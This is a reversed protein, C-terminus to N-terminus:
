PSRCTASATVDVIRGPHAFADLAARFIQQSDHVPSGFGPLSSPVTQLM